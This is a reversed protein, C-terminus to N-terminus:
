GKIAPLALKGKITQLMGDKVDIIIKHQNGFIAKCLHVANFETSVLAIDYETKKLKKIIEAEKSEARVDVHDAIQIGWQKCLPRCQRSFSKAWPSLLVMKKGSLHEWFHKDQLLKAEEGARVNALSALCLPTKNRLARRVQRKMDGADLSNLVISKHDGSSPILRRVRKWGDTTVHFIPKYHGGWRRLTDQVSWEVTEQLMKKSKTLNGNHVRQYYIPTHVSHFHYHGILKYLILMDERYRGEYPDNTPWGGMKKLASTRYFRPVINTNALLFEYKDTFSRGKKIKKRTLKGEADEWMINLDGSIVAVQTSQKEAENVLIELCHSSYWDDSDLQVMYPTDVISLAANLSKSQGLNSSNRILKVRPDDLYAQISPVYNDTSGDDVLIVKWGTYTQRFISELAKPLYKARNFFPIAVTVKTM